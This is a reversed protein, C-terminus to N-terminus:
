KVVMVHWGGVWGGMDVVCRVRLHARSLRQLRQRGHGAVAVLPGQEDDDGRTQAEHPGLHGLGPQREEARRVDLDAARQASM